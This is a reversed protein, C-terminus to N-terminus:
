PVRVDRGETAKGRPEGDPLSAMGTAEAPAVPDRKLVHIVVKGRAHGQEFYRIAEATERRELASKVLTFIRAV